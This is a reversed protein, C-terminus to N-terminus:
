RVQNTIKKKGKLFSFLESFHKRNASLCNINKNTFWEFVLSIDKMYATKTNKSLGKELCVIGIIRDIFEPKPQNINTM